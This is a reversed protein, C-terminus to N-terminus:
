APPSPLFGVDPPVLKAIEHPADQRLFARAQSAGRYRARFFRRKIPDFNIYFRLWGLARSAPNRKPIHLAGPNHVAQLIVDSYAHGEVIRLLYDLAVREKPIIHILGLAVFIGKGKGAKCAVWSFDIDEGSLLASGKRGLAQRLSSSTVENLYDNAVGRRVCLGAGYPNAGTNPDNSWADKSIDRLTVNDIYPDLEPDPAVEFEPTIRGAGYCGLNPYERAIEIVTKLYGTELLNDDDVFVIIDSETERIACLRAPTLGTEDESVIRARSHWSLDLRNELPPTSANDVIVLEWEDHSLSQNRLSDLTRDMYEPVPNHTCIVVSLM